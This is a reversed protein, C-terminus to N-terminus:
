PVDTVVEYNVFCRCRPHAPPLDFWNTGQPMGHRPACIPCVREDALVQWISNLNVGQNRLQDAIFEQGESVARTVETIAAAEARSRSMLNSLRDILQENTIGGQLFQRIYRDLKRTTTQNLTPVLQRARDAAWAQAARQLTADDVGYNISSAYLEAGELYVEELRDEIWAIEAQGLLAIQDLLPMPSNPTLGSVVSIWESEIRTYATDLYDAIAVDLRDRSTPEPM